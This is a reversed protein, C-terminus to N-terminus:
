EDIDVPWRAATLNQQFLQIKPQWDKCQESVAATFYFVEIVNKSTFWSASYLPLLLSLHIKWLNLLLQIDFLFLELGEHSSHFSSM